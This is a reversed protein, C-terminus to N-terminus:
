SQSVDYKWTGMVYRLRACFHFMSPSSAGGGAQDGDQLFLCPRRALAMAELPRSRCDLDTASDKM